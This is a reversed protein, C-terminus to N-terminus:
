EQKLSEVISQIVITELLDLGDEATLVEYDRGFIQNMVEDDSQSYWRPTLIGFFKIGEQRGRQVARQAWANLQNPYYGRFEPHGDTLMLILKTEKKTDKINEVAYQLALHTPTAGGTQMAGVGEPTQAHQLDLDNDASSWGFLEIDVNQISTVSKMLTAAVAKVEEINSYMSGSCDVYIHIAFGAEEAEDLFFEPEDIRGGIVYQIYSHMDISDGVVDIEETIEGKVELFHRSLNFAKEEDVVDLTNKIERVLNGYYDYQPEAQEPDKTDLDEIEFDGDVFDDIELEKKPAESLRKQMEELLDSMEEKGDELAEELRKELKSEIPYEDDWESKEHQRQVDEAGEFVNDNEFDLPDNFNFANMEPETPQQSDSSEGSDSESPTGEGPVQEGAPPEEFEDHNITEENDTSQSSEGTEYDDTDNSPTHESDLDDLHDEIAQDWDEETEYDDSDPTSEKSDSLSESSPQKQEEPESESTLFDSDDSSQSSAEGSECSEGTEDSNEFPQDSQGSETPKAEAQEEATVKAELDAQAEAEAEAKAKAEEELRKEEKKQKVYKEMEEWLWECVLYTSEPSNRRIKYLAQQIIPSFAKWEPAVLDPRDISLMMIGHAINNGVEDAYSKERFRRLQRATGKRLREGLSEVRYDEFTNYMAQSLMGYDLHDNCFRKFLKENTKFLKHYIEHELFSKILITPNKYPLHITNEVIFAKIDDPMFYDFHLELDEDILISFTDTIDYLVQKNM